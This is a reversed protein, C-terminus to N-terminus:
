KQRKKDDKPPTPEAVQLKKLWDNYHRVHILANTAALRVQLDSDRCLKELDPVYKESTPLGGIANIRVQPNADKLAKELLKSVQSNDKGEDLLRCARSVARTTDSQNTSGNNRLCTYTLIYPMASIGLSKVAKSADPARQDWKALGDLWYSLPQGQYLPGSLPRNTVEAANVGGVFALFTSALIVFVPATSTQRFLAPLSNQPGRGGTLEREIRGESVLLHENM